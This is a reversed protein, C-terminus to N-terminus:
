VRLDAAHAQEESRCEAPLRDHTGRLRMLREYVTRLDDLAATYTVAPDVRNHQLTPEVTAAASEVADEIPGSARIVNQNSLFRSL